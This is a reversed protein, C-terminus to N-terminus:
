QPSASESPAEVRQKKEESTETMEAGPEQEAAWPFVYPRFMVLPYCPGFQYRIEVMQM